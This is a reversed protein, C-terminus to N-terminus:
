GSPNEMEKRICYRVYEAMNAAHLEETRRAIDEKEKHSLAIYLKDVGGEHTVHTGWFRKLGMEKVLAPLRSPAICLRRLVEERDWLYGSAAMKRIIDERTDPTAYYPDPLFLKDPPIDFCAAIAIYLETRNNGPGLLMRRIRIGRVYPGALATMTEAGIKEELASYLEDSKQVIRKGSRDIRIYKRRTLENFIADRCPEESISFPAALTSEVYHAYKMEWKSVNTDVLEHPEADKLTDGPLIQQQKRRRREVILRCHHKSCVPSIPIQHAIHWYPEGYTEVDEQYCMPCFALPTYFGYMKIGDMRFPRIRSTAIREERRQIIAKKENSSSYRLVFPEITRQLADLFGAKDNRTEYYRLMLGTAFPTNDCYEDSGEKTAAGIQRLTEQFSQTGARLHYRALASCWLEDPYFAPLDYFGPM